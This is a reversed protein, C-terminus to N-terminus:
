FWNVYVTQLQGSSINTVQLNFYMQRKKYRMRTMGEQRNKEDHRRYDTIYRDNVEYSMHVNYIPPIYRRINCIIM